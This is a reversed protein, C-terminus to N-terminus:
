VNSLFDQLVLQGSRVSAVPIREDVGHVGQYRRGEPDAGLPSFGYCHISLSSFAKADTGGGMCYPVVVAEADYRLVSAKMAEFWQSDIPSSTPSEHAIFSRSLLPGLLEDLTELTSQEAGPVCRVDIDAEAVGPIVNVKYGARLVTPTASCRVTVAAVEGAEGMAEIAAKVGEESSLDANFGLAATTQELYQTVVPTLQLPWRYHAVRQLGDLLNSVANVQVPRSGHGSVGEARVRLHLTGREATAIPYLRVTSGDAAPLLNAAAGSEGIAAEVGDFLEPHEAVLWAAGYEGKDEEDAVFIVLIDREPREGTAGWNLLTALTMAVMDKMDCAGRGYIYGDQILGSFPDYSWQEAEAPVVDLHAQVLLAPLERNRGPVRLVVSLREPQPGLLMPQFGVSQLKEAIFEALRREGHSKGEGFNSTDFRILEACLQAADVTM